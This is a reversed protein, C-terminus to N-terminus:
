KKLLGYRRNRNTFDKLQKDLTKTTFDPWYIDIFSFEAYSLEWLLYNSVRKEGGTRILLDVDEGLNGTYLEKSFNEETIEIDNNRFKEVVRLIDKRSSYSLALNLVMKHNEKTDKELKYLLEKLFDPFKEINGIPHFYINNDLLMDRKEIVFNLLLDILYKVENTPRGWNEESFAYLTLHNIGIERCHIVIDTVVDAGVKHGQSRPFGEKQAWRGNGDMIIALHNPLM